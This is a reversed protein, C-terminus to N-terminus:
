KLVERRLEKVPDLIENRLRKFEDIQERREKPTQDKSRTEGLRRIEANIDKLEAETENIYEYMAAVDGNKALYEDAADFDERDIMKQWTKYKQFVADKFDYFLDERGRPVDERLFSGTIPAEKASPEPRTEAIAGISNSVWQGMAGATGFVGRIIHDAEIPSLVRKGDTGPIALMASLKKGLESTTATYQEAAQVDKLGEPIVTRGTFFDHNIAVELVPKVGAPIPEPGLLMDRAADALAKRIRRRDYESETGERTVVNYILEPIAKFFYAASTNMPLIIKTGPIIINKLKTQDDLEDYEPDGGALMAYLVSLSVLMTMTIGLRALAKKRSMGKLGGGVLARVLVDMANAYAGLFPVVKVAAQAYGASGHHLFNIVNAAQFLARTEDGTEALVRKYVAVRQAMDSADGIHDLGKILASFVNRNMIGLRRKIEAEPTRAPSHFGGIGAAKLIDVAPDTNTLSTLFGKWVGGILALPNKVGTVLAATPADKFVQKLQFVGSLTISRRTLNAVMALPAWMQLNLNEMGYISSAVLPDQIEVVVKKGNVIWNFRGKDKDVSPFTMIKDNANRSAYEMVIRNAAFQRIGNMTMRMVNRTMNDIINEIERNTKFVVLDNEELDMDLRVQGDPAVSVLEDAVPAGNVEVKVVSSPQIKFDKQGATARFDVVAIPKGRKFLKERGINTLARTTSQLPSHVDEEDAMIRYWPVYDKIAALTEYRGQSILGVQRWFKLLNQNVATWNDMIQRLEPHKQDLAAFEYMEDESMNVSSVAKKINDVDTALAEAVAKAQAIDEPEAGSERLMKLTDKAAEFAAERDYLEDMISISRKAELYGQIIDTGLQDGLQKKLEGEAEYVGKMGMRRNVAVFNNSKADYEIGGRFIVEVGINGSRIANDLAVSATAIGESTRLEGNYQDFDRAELGSGYWVNKNRLYILGDMVADGTGVMAERPNAVADQVFEKGNKFQQNVFTAIPKTNLMPTKPRNYKEVLKKDDEVNELTVFKGGTASVMDVLMDRGMRERSGGMVQGFVRHIESRNDFGLVNKVGEWMRRVARKFKDWAGGLQAAMLKEANVAWFESPNIFQYMDYSPLAEQAKRYSANTPNDLFDLVANFYKQHLEDPNQKIARSLAKGWAQVLAMRQEPTMMQELTHALEHRITAPNRVGSTGKYLRIIRQWPMFDGAAMGGKPAARVRLLLGELLDPTKAYAAQIVELVDASINGADYETLAKALFQEASDRRPKTAKITFQLNRARDLLRSVTEQMELGARGAAVEKPVRALQARLTAYEKIREKRLQESDLVDQDSYPDVAGIAAPEISQIISPSDPNFTGLNGIASKIQSENFAVVEWFRTPGRPESLVGDVGDNLLEQRADWAREDSRTTGEFREIYDDISIPNTLRVYVPYVTGQGAKAYNAAREPNGSFYAGAGYLGASMQFSVIADGAQTFGTGHYVVLPRGQADVVQSDGFWRWFNRLGADTPHIRQGSSNAIPRQAGDVEIFGTAGAGAGVEGERGAAQAESVGAGRSQRVRESLATPAYETGGAGGRASAAGADKQYAELSKATNRTTSQGYAERMATFASEHRRLVELIADRYYDILGEDSLYQEVKIMQGNHAVGHDMSGTHAIEHIMTNLFNQRVGFLTRAGWDYFPNLFVAKYPVKLHLGGYEKDISVGGFFLNNPALAEYGYIGSKALDEKMEVILTGLEAFFKEPEGFKRGIELYDVNTNNHFIPLSPDQKLDILFDKSQPAKEGAFTSEKEKEVAKEIKLLVKKTIADTVADPTISVEKPLPKLEAPAEAGQTGFTKKLKETVSAIEAGAEVRPMSVIGKFSEQLGAAEYGRSIQGLYAEMSEIDKKLRGKFRERSNEFPYDPHRADVNPKVNIIIDYPIKENGIQFRDDFQYVGSSLVRHESGRLKREVGFYIDASGWEFNAKFKQFKDEPFNVGVPLTKEITDGFSQMKVKVEVPGILPKNLPDIYDLGWPFWIDKADGTKPDIYKEPIQVTVTTGHEGKPAPSKVIKFNNNAIDKATTDVTVRVGDRVTDLQLRDAGLMFGMKALGLGGSRESPDLDSKESGAVTFFADRVIQPTMGRANDKISITRDSTNLTIEISGSKYLSQAKKSSVAGKVADFANQLLEKVSVDALNAAYMNAGLLQILNGMDANLQGAEEGFKNDQAKSYASTGSIDPRAVFTLGSKLVRQYAKPSKAADPRFRVYDGELGIVVGPTNGFRVQDGVMFDGAMREMADKAVTEVFEAENQIQQETLPAAGLREVEDLLARDAAQYDTGFYYPDDVVDAVQKDSMGAAVAERFVEPSMMDYKNALAMVPNDVANNAQFFAYAFGEPTVSRANKTEQSKGGYMRHMKSGEVPEVPAIPLNANFRGWLLTKKTYPDGFHNPNFSLRWPPLGTLKEIRGVPNEIAWVSPKFYEVTALTQRVLEVSEVTRGDADKAAFHRAGSSAFDTCPCAALIAYIDQGEFAGYLDNFFEASFKNVDGMEPDEQIDFRFVQYGAEEWPKSWEGTMDFLSLVIKESNRRTDGQAQANRKWEEIRQKAQEVTLYGADKVFIRAKEEIRVIDAKKPADFVRTVTDADQAQQAGQFADAVDSVEEDSAGRFGPDNEDPADTPEAEKEGFMKQHLADIANAVDETVQREKPDEISPLSQRLNEAEAKMDMGRVDRTMKLAMDRAAKNYMDSGRERAYLVLEPYDKLVEDAIEKGQRVANTIAARHKLDQLRDEFQRRANPAFAMLRRIIEAKSGNTSTGIENALPKLKALTMSELQPQTYGDMTAMGNFLDILKQAMTNKDKVEVGYLRALLRVNKEGHKDLLTKPTMGAPKVGLAASTSQGRTAQDERYQARTMGITRDQSDTAEAKPAPAPAPAPAAAPPAAFLDEQGRAAAEDAPRDSGTLVFEDRARDAREKREMEQDALTKRRTEAEEQEARERLEEPTQATLLPEAPQEVPTLMPPAVGRETRIEAILEPSTSWNDWAVKRQRLEDIRRKVAEPDKIDIGEAKAVAPNKAAGSIASLRTQIERQKRAAIKAMEEAERIASDDFGFMDTTMAQEGALAKVAQMMNIATNMSKGDNIANIGVAQLRSDNPANLAVYFAAEDGIQDARVATILEDSGQTAITFSRKGTARALLGRSEATERDIGSEKFYNVYDKAKGQGDRINLEADLVAAHDRTFGKAEDHIQAPITSEGSRQALDFRHRGSIVELSGDLRRWVQIPAVGTREFKGGLPEVVGKASAGIKFQPVDTSLTLQDLPVEVTTMGQAENNQPAPEFERPKTVPPVAPADPVAVAATTPQIAVPTVPTVAPAAAVEALTVPTVPAPQEALEEGTPMGPITPVERAGPARPERPPAIEPLRTIPEGTQLSFLEARADAIQNQLDDFQKRDPSGARPPNGDPTFLGFQRSELDLIRDALAEEEPSIAFTPEARGESEDLPVFTLSPEAGQSPPLAEFDVRPEIRGGAEPGATPEGLEPEVRRGAAPPAAPEEPPEGGAPAGGPPVPGVPRQRALEALTRPQAGTRALFAAEQKIAQPSFAVADIDAKIAKALASAPDIKPLVQENYFRVALDKGKMGGGMIGMTIATQIFQQKFADAVTIEDETLGAKLEAANQGMGTATETLNEAAFSNAKKIYGALKAGPAGKAPAAFARLFIANSIAEPIAEWAGYEVAAANFEKKAKNWDAASLARGFVRKSDDNLKTRLRDLFDDKSARYALTGSTAMGAGVGVIPNGTAATAGTGTIASAVMTTLSYGLSKGLGMFGQYNPDDRRLGMREPLNPIFIDKADNGLYTITRDVYGTDITSDIDGARYARLAAEAMGKPIDLIGEVVYPVAETTAKIPARGEPNFMPQGSPRAGMVGRVGLAEKMQRYAEDVPINKEKAIRRALAENAAKARDGPFLNLFREWLTPEWPRLEPGTPAAAAVPATPPAATTDRQRSRDRSAAAPAGESPPRRGMRPPVMVAGGPTVVGGPPAALEEPSVVPEAAPPPEAQLPVFQLTQEQAEIESLPVFRM